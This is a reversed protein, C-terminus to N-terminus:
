ATVAEKLVDIRGADGDLCVLDGTRLRRTGEVTCTVCPLGLERAVIAGHSMQGGMDVAVGGALHFLSAWGPDTSRCVLIEGPELEDELPDLVVRVRGTVRGGGVAEGTVPVPQRDDGIPDEPGALPIRQPPGTWKDPLETTEYNERLAAREAALARANGPPREADLEDYTLGFVDDPHELAGNAALTRGIVRAALRAIDLCQTYNAKGVERQPILTRAFSLVLRASAARLRGSAGLLETEAAERAAIQRREALAPHADDDLEAYRGLLADLARGDERWVASDLQGENPGHYGHRLLFSARDIGEHALTWLDAVLGTEVMGAYGTVLRHELGDRGARAALLVIQDYLGQSLMSALVGLEFSRTYHARAERLLARAAVLDAPPDLVAQRWARVVADRQRVNASALRAVTAPMRAAVFPIRSHDPHSQVGPRVVGFLQEEVANGSTGPLRDGIRRLADINAVTRGYFCAMFREEARNGLSLEHRGLVGLSHFARRTAHEVADDIFSWNLASSVGPIAESVNGPSWLVDPDTAEWHLPNAM